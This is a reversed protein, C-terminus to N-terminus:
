LADEIRLKVVMEVDLAQLAAGGCARCAVIRAWIMLSPWFSVSPAATVMNM